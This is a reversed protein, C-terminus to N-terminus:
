KKPALTVVLSSGESKIDQEVRGVDKLDEIMRRLLEQGREQFAVERGRFRVIVKVRNGEQLFRLASRLKVQYDHEDIKPRMNLEKLESVKQKKRSLKAKKEKEYRFKGYDMIKCVPPNANPGVEVLDLGAEEAMQLAKKLPVIGIQTGEPSILRVERAGIQHNM